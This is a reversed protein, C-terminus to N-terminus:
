AVKHLCGHWKRRSSKFRQRYLDSADWQRQWRKDSITKIKGKHKFFTNTPHLITPQCNIVNHWQRRVESNRVFWFINPDTKKKKKAYPYHIKMRQSKFCKKKPKWYKSSSTSVWKICVWEQSESFINIRYILDKLLSLIKWDNKETIKKHGM